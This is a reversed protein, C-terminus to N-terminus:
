NRRAVEKKLGFRFQEEPILVYNTDLIYRKPPQRQYIYAGIYKNHMDEISSLSNGTSIKGSVKAIVYSQGDCDVLIYKGNEEYLFGKCRGLSSRLKQKDIVINNVSTVLFRNHSDWQWFSHDPIIELNNVSVPAQFNSCEVFLLLSLLNFTYFLGKKM